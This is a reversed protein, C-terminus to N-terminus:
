TTSGCPERKELKMCALLTINALFIAGRIYNLTAITM